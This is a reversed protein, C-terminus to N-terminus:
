RSLSFSDTTLGTLDRKDEKWRRRVIKIEEEKEGLLKNLRGNEDKLEKFLHFIVKINIWFLCKRNLRVPNLSVICVRIAEQLEKFDDTEM